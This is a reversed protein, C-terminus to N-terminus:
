IGEFEYSAEQHQYCRKGWDTVRRRCRGGNPLPAGCFPAVEVLEVKRYLGSAEIMARSIHERELVDVLDQGTLDRAPVGMMYGPGQYRFVTHADILDSLQSEDAM